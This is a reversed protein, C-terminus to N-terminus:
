EPSRMLINTRGWGEARTDEFGHMGLLLNAREVQAMVSPSACCEAKAASAAGAISVPSVAQISM